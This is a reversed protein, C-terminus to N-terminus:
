SDWAIDHALDEPGFGVIDERHVFVTSELIEERAFTARVLHDATFETSIFVASDFKHIAQTVCSGTLSHTLVEVLLLVQFVLRLKTSIYLKLISRGIDLLDTPKPDKHSPLLWKSLYVRSM